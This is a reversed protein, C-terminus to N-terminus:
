PGNATGAGAYEGHHIQELLKRYNNAAEPTHFGGKHIRRGETAISASYNGSKHLRVGKFKTTNNSRTRRNRHNQAASVTRLNSIRNDLGNGNIHDVHEGHHYTILRHVYQLKKGVHVVAYLTNAIPSSRLAMVRRHTIKRLNEWRGCDILMVAAPHKPTSVDVEYHDGCFKIKNHTKGRM